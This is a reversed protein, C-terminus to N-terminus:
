AHLRPTLVHAAPAVASAVRQERKNVKQQESYAWRLAMVAVVLAVIILGVVVRPWARRRDLWTRGTGHLLSAVLRRRAIAAEQVRALDASRLTPLTHSPRYEEATM